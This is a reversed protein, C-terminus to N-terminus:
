AQLQAQLSPQFAMATRVRNEERLAAEIAAHAGFADRMVRNAGAAGSLLEEFARAGSFGRMRDAARRIEDIAPTHPVNSGRLKRSDMSEGWGAELRASACARNNDYIFTAR